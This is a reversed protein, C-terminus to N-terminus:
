EITLEYAGSAQNYGYIVLLGPGTFQLVETGTTDQSIVPNGDPGSVPRGTAIDLVQMDLDGVDNSYRMTATWPGDVTVSYMDAFTDCIGGAYVGAGIAASTDPDNNPESAEEDGASCKNDFPVQPAPPNSWDADPDRAIEVFPLYSQSMSQDAIVKMDSTRIAFASPFANITRLNNIYARPSTDGDGVVYVNPADIFQSVFDKSVQPSAPEGFNDQVTVVVVMGGEAEFEEAISDIYRLENPCYQCWEAVLVLAITDVGEFAPDCAVDFLDLDVQEAGGIQFANRWYLDKVTKEYGIGEDVIEPYRCTPAVTGTDEVSGTDEVAGTDEVSGTDTGTGTDASLDGGGTQPSRSEGDDSSCAILAGPLIAVLSWSNKLM